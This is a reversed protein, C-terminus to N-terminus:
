THACRELGCVEQRIGARAARTFPQASKLCLTVPTTSPPIESVSSFIDKKM